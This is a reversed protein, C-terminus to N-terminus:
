NLSYKKLKKENTLHIAGMALSFLILIVIGSVMWFSTPLMRILVDDYRLSWDDNTFFIKHFVVFATNFDILMYGGVFSVFLAPGVYIFKLTKYLEGKDKKYLYVFLSVAIVLASVAVIRLMTYLNKVDVMHSIEIERMIVSDDEPTSGFELDDYRYNLYGMVRDIAYDHDFEILRHSPYLGKSLMLYPKTTLISAFLIILFFPITVNLLIRIVKM